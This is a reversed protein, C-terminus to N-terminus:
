NRLPHKVNLVMPIDRKTTIPIRVVEYPITGFQSLYQVM